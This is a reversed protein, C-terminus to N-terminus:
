DLDAIIKRTLNDRGSPRAISLDGDLPTVTAYGRALLEYDTTVKGTTATADQMVGLDYGVSWTDDDVRRYTTHLPDIDAFTAERVGRFPQSPYNVNFGVNRPLLQGCDTANRAVSAVLQTVLRATGAFDYSSGGTWHADFEAPHATSVAIAPIGRDLATTAAGVTGSHNTVLSLNTGANTGSIVLDPEDDAFLATLAFAVADAPTGGVAWIDPDGAVPHTVDLTGGYAMGGGKGTQNTAPAVMAVHHGAANLAAYVANIGPAAYGDDNTLVIDLPRKCGAPSSPVATSAAPGASALAAVTLALAAASALLTHRTKM